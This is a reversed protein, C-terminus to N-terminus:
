ILMVYPRGRPAKSLTMAPGRFGYIFIIHKPCVDFSNFEDNRALRARSRASSQAFRDVDGCFSFSSQKTALAGRLSPPFTKM